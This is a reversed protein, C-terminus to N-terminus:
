LQFLILFLIFMFSIVTLTVILGLTRLTILPIYINSSLMMLIFFVIGIISTKAPPSFIVLDKSVNMPNNSINM